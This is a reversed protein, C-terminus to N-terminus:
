PCPKLRATFACAQPAAKAASTRRRERFGSVNDGSEGYRLEGTSQFMCGIPHAMRAGSAPHYRLGIAAMEFFGLFDAGALAALGLAAGLVREPALSMEELSLKLPRTNLTKM